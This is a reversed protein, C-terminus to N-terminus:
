VFEQQSEQNNLVSRTIDENAVNVMIKRNCTLLLDSSLLISSSYLIPSFTIRFIWLPTSFKSTGMTKSSLSYLLSKKLIALQGNLDVEFFKNYLFTSAHKVHKEIFLENQIFMRGPPAGLKYTRRTHKTYVCYM